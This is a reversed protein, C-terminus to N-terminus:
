EHPFLVNKKSRRWETRNSNRWNQPRLYRNNKICGWGTFGSAPRFFPRGAEKDELTLFTNKTQYGLVAIRNAVIMQEMPTAKSPHRAFEYGGYGKWTVTAIGLGGAFKGKDKWDGATECQAVDRWYAPPMTGKIKMQWQLELVDPKTVAMERVVVQDTTSSTPATGESFLTQTVSLILTAVFGLRTYM